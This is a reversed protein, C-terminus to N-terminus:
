SPPSRRTPSFWPHAASIDPLLRPCFGRNWIRLDSIGSSGVLNANYSPKHAWVLLREVDHQHKRAYRPISAALVEVEWEDKLWKEHQLCRAHLSACKGIYLLARPGYVASWALIAYVGPGRLSDLDQATAPLQPVLRKRHWAFPGHWELEVFRFKSDPQKSM